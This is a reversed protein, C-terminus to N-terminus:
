YADLVRDIRKPPPLAGPDYGPKVVRRTVSWLNKRRDSTVKKAREASATREEATMAKQDEGVLYRMVRSTHAEIHWVAYVFTLVRTVYGRTPGKGYLRHYLRYAVTRHEYEEALHWRWLELTAPDVDALVKEAYDVWFEAGASGIAEFGEMYGVNFRLPRKALFREYDAEYRRELPALGEYNGAERLRKNYARHLKFHQAEQKIFVDIDDLLEQDASGLKERAKRVVNILYPEIYAPVTSLANFSQAFEGNATWRPVVASFDITPQRVRM